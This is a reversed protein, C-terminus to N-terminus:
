QPAEHRERIFTALASGSDDYFTLRGGAVGAQRVQTMVHPMPPPKAGGHDPCGVQSLGFPTVRFAPGPGLHVEGGMTNCGLPGRWRVSSGDVHFTLQVKYWAREAVPHGMVTVAQWTGELNRPTALTGHLASASGSPVPTDRALAPRPEEDVGGYCGTLVGLVAAMAVTSAWRNQRLVGVGEHSLLWRRSLERGSQCAKPGGPRRVLV